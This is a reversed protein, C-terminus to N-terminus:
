TIVQYLNILVQKNIYDRSRMFNIFIKRFSPYTEFTKISLNRFNFINNELCKVLSHLYRLFLVKNNLLFIEEKKTRFELFM